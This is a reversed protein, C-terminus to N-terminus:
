DKLHGWLRGDVIKTVHGVHIGYQRGVSTRVMGERVMRRIALVDDETLKARGHATGRPRRGHRICDEANAKQTDWRLNGLHNNAPDPDPDHCAESGEPCPGVFAELVLQHIFRHVPKGDRYLVVVLHGDKNPAPKLQKWEDSLRQGGGYGKAKRCSWATGNDGVAYGLFDPVLRFRVGPVFPLSNM